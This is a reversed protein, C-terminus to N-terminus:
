AYLTEHQEKLRTVLLDQGVNAYTEIYGVAM